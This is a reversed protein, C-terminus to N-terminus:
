TQRRRHYTDTIGVAPLQSSDVKRHQWHSCLRLWRLARSELKHKMIHKCQVRHSLSSRSQEVKDPATIPSIEAKRPMAFVAVSVVSSTSVATCESQRRSHDRSGSQAVDTCTACGSGGHRCVDDSEEEEEEDDSGEDMDAEGADDTQSVTAATGNETLSIPPNISSDNAIRAAEAATAAAPPTTAM